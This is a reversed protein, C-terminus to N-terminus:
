FETVLAGADRGALWWLVTQRGTGLNSACSAFGQFGEERVGAVMRGAPHAARASWPPHPTTDMVTRVRGRMLPSIAATSWGEALRAAIGPPSDTAIEVSGAAAAVAGTVWTVGAAL